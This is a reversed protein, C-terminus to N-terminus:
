ESREAEGKEGCGPRRTREGGSGAPIFGLLGASKPKYMTPLTKFRRKTFGYAKGLVIFTAKLRTLLKSM